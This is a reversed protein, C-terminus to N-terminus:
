CNNFLLLYMRRKKLTTINKSMYDAIKIKALM